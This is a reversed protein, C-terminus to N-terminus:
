PVLDGAPVVLHAPAAGAPQGPLADRLGARGPGARRPGRLPEVPAPPRFPAGAALGRPPAVGLAAPRPSRGAGGPAGQRLAPGPLPPARGAGSWGGQSAMRPADEEMM